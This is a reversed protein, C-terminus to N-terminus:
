LKRLYGLLAQRQALELTQGFYHGGTKREPDLLSDLSAVYGGFLLLRRDSLGRLSTTQQKGTGRVTNQMKAVPGSLVAAPLPLGTLGPGAHCHACHQAFLAAGPDGTVEPYLLNDGLRWLFYALAFADTPTPRLEQRHATILGTEVRLALGPLSNKVDATRHLFTQFQVARVDGIVVPNDQSDAALDVRGPGWTSYLSRHGTEDDKARGLDLQHNPIGRRLAGSSSTSGHCTSCTFAPFVGGPLAVWVLGGVSTNNQWLGYESPSEKERLIKIMSREVQAPLEDFLQEGMRRLGELDAPLAQNGGRTIWSEDPFPTPKGLDEPRVPRTRFQGVPLSGWHEPTYNALRLKSYGNSPNALSAELTKRRFNADSVFQAAVTM